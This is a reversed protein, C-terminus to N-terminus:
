DTARAPRDRHSTRATRATKEISRTNEHIGNPGPRNSTARFGHDDDRRVRDIDVIQILDFLPYPGSTMGLASSRSSDRVSACPDSRPM